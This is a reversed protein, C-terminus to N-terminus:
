RNQFFGPEDWVGFIIQGVDLATAAIFPDPNPVAYDSVWFLADPVRDQIVKANRLVEFPVARDYPRYVPSGSWYSGNGDRGAINWEVRDRERLPRWIWIQGHENAKKKLYQYVEEPDYGQIANDAMVQLIEARIIAASRLGLETALKCYESFRANNNIVLKPKPREMIPGLQQVAINSRRFM